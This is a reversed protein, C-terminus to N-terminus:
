CGGRMCGLCIPYLTDLMCWFGDVRIFEAPGLMLLLCSLLEIAVEEALLMVGALVSGVFRPVVNNCLVLLLYISGAEAWYDANCIGAGVGQWVAIVAVFHLEPRVTGSRDSAYNLLGDLLNEMLLLARILYAFGVLLSEKLLLLVGPIFSLRM